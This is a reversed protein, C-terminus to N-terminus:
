FKEYAQRRGTAGDLALRTEVNGRLLVTKLEPRFRKAARRLSATGIVAGEPLEDLRAGGRGIFADRADERPLYGAIAIERPLETPLDKSSHVAFDIEGSLLALDLERTFLGKGGAESLARDQIADGSTRIVVIEFHEPAVGHAKGLRAHRNKPASHEDVTRIQPRSELAACRWPL